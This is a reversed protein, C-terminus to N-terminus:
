GLGSVQTWAASRYRVFCYFVPTWPSNNRDKEIYRSQLGMDATQRSAAIAWWGPPWWVTSGPFLKIQRAVFCVADSQMTCHMNNSFLQKVMINLNISCAHIKLHSTLQQSQVALWTSEALASVKVSVISTNSSVYYILCIVADTCLLLLDQFISIAASFKATAACYSTRENTNERYVSWHNIM